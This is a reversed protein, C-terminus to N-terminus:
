TTVKGAMTANITHGKVPLCKLISVEDLLM